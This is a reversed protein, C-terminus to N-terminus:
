RLADDYTSKHRTIISRRKWCMKPLPSYYPGTGNSISVQLVSSNWISTESVQLIYKRMYTLSLTFLIYSFFFFHPYLYENVVYNKCQAFAWSNVPNLLPRHGEM